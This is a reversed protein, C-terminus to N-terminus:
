VRRGADQTTERWDAAVTITVNTVGEGIFAEDYEKRMKIPM